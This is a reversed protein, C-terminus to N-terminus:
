ELNLFAQSYSVFEAWTDFIKDYDTWNTEGNVNEKIEYTAVIKGDLLKVRRIEREVKADQIDTKIEEIDPM